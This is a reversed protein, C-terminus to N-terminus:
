GTSAGTILIPRQCSDKLELHPTALAGIAATASAQEEGADPM